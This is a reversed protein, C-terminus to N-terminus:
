SQVGFALRLRMRIRCRLDDELSVPILCGWGSSRSITNRSQVAECHSIAELEEAHLML